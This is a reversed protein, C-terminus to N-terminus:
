VIEKLLQTSVKSERTLSIKGTRAIEMIGFSSLIQEIAIIKGPDGTVEIILSTEALDVIRARFIQVIELIESRKHSPSNVKLLMLEREVCPVHTIDQVKLINILKYLQKTLQDITKDEIPVVMTIRSIGVQEAPGVALSEINFGRRAFLGAIRTLVGSEDEVLVSLTHKM